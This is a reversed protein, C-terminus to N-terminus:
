RRRRDDACPPHAHLAAIVTVRRSVRGVRARSCVPSACDATGLSCRHGRGGLRRGGHTGYMERLVRDHGKPQQVLVADLGRRQGVGSIRAQSAHVPLGEFGFERRCQKQVVLAHRCGDERDTVHRRQLAHLARQVLALHAQAECEIGGADAVPVHVKAGVHGATGQAVVRAKAVALRHGGPAVTRHVPQPGLPAEIEVIVAPRLAHGADLHVHRRAAREVVRQAPRLFPQLEHQARCAFAGPVDIQRGAHGIARRAPQLHQPEINRQPGGVGLEPQCEAMGFVDGAHPLGKGRGELAARVGVLDLQPHAVGVPMAHRHLGAADHHAVVLAPRLADGSGVAVQRLAIAQAFGRM